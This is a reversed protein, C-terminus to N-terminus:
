RRKERQRLELRYRCVEKLDNQFEHKIIWKLYSRGRAKNVLESVRSGRFKGFLLLADEGNSSISYKASVWIPVFGNELEPKRVPNRRIPEPLGKVKKGRAWKRIEELKAM